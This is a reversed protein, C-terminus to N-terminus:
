IDFGRWAGRLVFLVIVALVHLFAILYVHEPFLAHVALFLPSTIVAYVFIKALYLVLYVFAFTVISRLAERAIVGINRPSIYM